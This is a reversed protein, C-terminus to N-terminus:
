FLFDKSPYFRVDSDLFRYEEYMQRAKSESACVIVRRGAGGSLAYVLHTKQSRVCGSVQLAGKGKKQEKKIEEFEALEELPMTLARM